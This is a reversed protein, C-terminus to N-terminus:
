PKVIELPVASHMDRDPWWAFFTLTFSFAEASPNDKNTMDDLTLEETFAGNGNKMATVFVLRYPRARGNETKVAIEAQTRYDKLPFEGTQQVIGVVRLKPRSWDQDPSAPVVERKLITIKVNPKLGLYQTDGLNSRLDQLASKPACAVCSLSALLLLIPKM